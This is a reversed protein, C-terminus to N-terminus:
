SASDRVRFQKSDLNAILRAIRKADVGPPTGKRERILSAAERDRSLRRVAQYARKGDALALVTSPHRLRASGLRVLAGEPLPGRRGDPRPEEAPFPSPTLVASLIAVGAFRFAYM